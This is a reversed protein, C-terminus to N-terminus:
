RMDRCLECSQGLLRSSSLFARRWFPSMEHRSHIASCLTITCCLTSVFPFPRMRRRNFVAFIWVWIFVIWILDNWLFPSIWEWNKPMIKLLLSQFLRNNYCKSCFKVWKVIFAFKVKTVSATLDFKYRLQDNLMFTCFRKSHYIMRDFNKISM